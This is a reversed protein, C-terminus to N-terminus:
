IKTVSAKKNLSLLDKTQFNSVKDLQNKNTKKILKPNIVIMILMTEKIKKYVHM